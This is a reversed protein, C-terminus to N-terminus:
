GRVKVHEGGEIEDARAADKECCEVNGEHMERLYAVVAAREARFAAVLRVVRKDAPLRHEQSGSYHGDGFSRGPLYVRRGNVWEDGGCRWETGSYDSRAVSLPAGCIRCVPPPKEGYRELLEAIEVESIM